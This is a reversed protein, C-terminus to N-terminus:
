SEKAPGQCLATHLLVLVPSLREHVPSVLTPSQVSPSGASLSSEPVSSFDSPHM